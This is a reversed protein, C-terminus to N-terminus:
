IRRIRCIPLKIERRYFENKLYELETERLEDAVDIYWARPM